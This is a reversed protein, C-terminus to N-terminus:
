ERGRNLLDNFDGVSEPMAIRITRGEVKWRRGAEVANRQGTGGVDRDAAIVVRRVRAAARSNKVRRCQSGVM